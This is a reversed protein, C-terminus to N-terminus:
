RAMSLVKRVGWITGLAALIVGGITLVLSIDPSFEAGTM